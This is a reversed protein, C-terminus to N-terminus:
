PLHKLSDLLGHPTTGNMPLRAMWARWGRRARPRPAGGTRCGYTAAVAPAVDDAFEADFAAAALTALVDEVGAGRAIWDACVAHRLRVGLAMLGVVARDGDARYQLRVSRRGDPAAWFLPAEGEPPAADIRGYQQWEVDFFKASNYFMGPAYAAPRGALNHGAVAGQERAVYWLAETPARGPPPDRLEACDGAAFVDPASTRLRGDVRIGRGVEVGAEAALAVDPRVGTAVGVWGAEVAEGAVTEVGRVRGAADGLLARLETGTRLDVGHRRIEDMVLRGEEPPLVGAHYTPERVLFTVAKGRLRLIEALEVGILGGGVVVTRHVAAADREMRDLDDLRVFGQVGGLGAGPWDPVAPLSGTALLLRDYSLPPGGRLEVRKARPDLRVARDHVRAIRNAAWFGDAYLRTQGRTLHGSYLYMLAPRSFPHATEDSVVTIRAAPALRRAHRAATVGAIGNGLILLHV